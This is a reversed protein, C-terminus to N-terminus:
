SRLACPSNKGHESRELLGARAPQSKATPQGGKYVSRFANLKAECGVNCLEAHAMRKAGLSFVNRTANVEELVEDMDEANVSATPKSTECLRTLERLRVEIASARVQMVLLGFHAM